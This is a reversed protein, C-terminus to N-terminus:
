EMDDPSPDLAEPEAPYDAPAGEDLDDPSPDSMENDRVLLLDEGGADYNAAQEEELLLAKISLSVKQKEYDIDTIRVRVVQNISLVDAPKQIKQTDIQSIHILGDVGPIIEAFAGFPMMSIVKAEITDGIIHSNIFLVWPNDEEKRYGLSIRRKEPDFDKVYVEVNEGETLVDSPHKVRKWALETIHIMGDVGGLDVFAGYSTFSKVVGNYKKGIEITNWILAEKERREERMAQRVSAVARRRQENIDIVRLKVTSGVMTQLDADRSLGTQSAPVFVRVSNIVALVGSKVVEVIKGDVIAEQEYADVIYQWNNIADVRKKSLSAVGDVDNVKIIMVEITDGVKFLETLDAGPDDTAEDFPLIGTHKTGLDVHIEAPSVSTITGTHKERFNTNVSKLSQDLMEEFSLETENKIQDPMLNLVEKIIGDPTSAGATIGIIFSEAFNIHELGQASEILYSNACNRRCVDYLKATNSSEAGGIVIMADCKKALEGAERQRKYTVNCITDFILSNTYVKKIIFKCLRWDDADHTTQAAMIIRDYKDDPNLDHINEELAASDRFVVCDGRARSVIGRVEPHAADGIIVALTGPGTEDEVIRHINKVYPCTLDHLEGCRGADREAELTVGHTRLVVVANEPLSGIDEESIFVVGRSEMDSIFAPNHILKGVCYIIGGGKEELIRELSDVARAVGFCFGASPALKIEM